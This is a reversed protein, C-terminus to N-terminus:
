TVGSFNDVTTLLQTAACNRNALRNEGFSSSQYEGRYLPMLPAILDHMYLANTCETESRWLLSHLYDIKVNGFHELNLQNCLLTGQAVVYSIDSKYNGYM